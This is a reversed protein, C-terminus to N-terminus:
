AATVYRQVESERDNSGIHSSTDRGVEELIRYIQYWIRHRKAAYSRIAVTYVEVFAETYVLHLRQGKATYSVM